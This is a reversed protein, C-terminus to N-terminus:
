QPAPSVNNWSISFKRPQALTKMTPMPSASMLFGNSCAFKTQLGPLIVTAFAPYVDSIAIEAQQWQDFLACSPSDAQLSFTQKVEEWVFGGSLIGDVGMYTEARKVQDVDFIDDAAFGYLQQPVPFLFPINLLITSNAATLSM